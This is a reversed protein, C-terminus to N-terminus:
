GGLMECVVKCKQMFRAAPEEISLAIEHSGADLRAVIVKMRENTEAIGTRKKEIVRRSEGATPEGLARLTKEIGDVRVSLAEIRPKAADATAKDKVGELLKAFERQV